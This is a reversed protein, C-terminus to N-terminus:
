NCPLGEVDSGDHESESCWGMFHDARTVDWHVEDFDDPDTEEHIFDGEQGVNPARGKYAFGLLSPDIRGEFRYHRFLWIVTGDRPATAMPRLKPAHRESMWFGYWTM